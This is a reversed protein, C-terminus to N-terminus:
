DRLLENISTKSRTQEDVRKVIVACSLNPGPSGDPLPKGPLSGPVVVSYAPVRGRFVEGTTRDIIKTSASIFVGMSLVSGEEVIVGEVVESRAGIFCNDEIITPEAQLPELVGGIGVGGSLHVNKGIQACSGVTVWTDVMTGEDVYAGVNVFSPMLVAGKGIHASYRVVCNPVARFGAKEFHEREWGHFKSEVKDYWSSQNPGGSIRQMENLRFSLLVAKKLWQNVVWGDNSKEAIRMEGADLMALAQEVADRTEGETAPSIEARDEWGQDIISELDSTKLAAQAMINTRKITQALITFLESCKVM